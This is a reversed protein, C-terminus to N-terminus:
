ASLHVWHARSPVGERDTLFLMYWGPPALGPQRPVTVVLRCFGRRRRSIPLDVLRQETDCSHTVAMPRILQAWRIEDAQPTEIEFSQGYTIASPASEVFPRPGRFLYPPHYLELRLEDDRRHPNSGATIVRGDPLLLAVSHYLRPVVAKAARRWTNAAPDYLESELVASAPDEEPGGGTVFVTRDPLIVMNQMGRPHVPKPGAVFHPSAASLDILNMDTVPGGTGGGGLVMVRQRQAPPLLVSPAMSHHDVPTLGPVATESNAAVDFIFPARAFGDFHAGTFFVRGDRLLILNPFSGWDHPQPLPAAWGTLPSYIEVQRWVDGTGGAALVRGDGLTIATPYWRPAQMDGLRIWEESTPDFAYATRLGTFAYTETGGVVLLRGDGLFSQHACFVDIPTVPQHFSGNEYDWVVSRLGTTYLEDNGSGAFFLVKGTHMLAAHVALVQSDCPLLEFVGRTAALGLDITPTAAGDMGMDGMGMGGMGDADGGVHVPRNDPPKHRRPHCREQDVVPCENSGDDLPLRLPLREAAERTLWVWDRSRVLGALGVMMHEEIHCHFLFDGKVRLRCADRPPDCQQDELECPLRLAPPVETDTVFSEVPSLSHVDSAGGPPTPLRWRASHPHFNHWVGGLDLNLVYWRLREGAEAVITPTNGVYARGNLCYTAAGGGDAIVIHDHGPETEDNRWIVKGGPRVTAVQPDFKNDHASITRPDPGAPDIRLEGPMMAAGHIQCHYRCIGVENSATIEYTDGPSLTPSLFDCAIGTGAMQHVFMPVEHDVCPAGPDRVILGGFLGRNVTRGVDRVHDHFGWAGITEETADFVYTWVQGPLIEDSRRGDATEVGFPWAGDSDIGYRLGHLHFSHCDDPDGNLVHIRLREGPTAWLVAGPVRRSWPPENVDAPVLKSPNPVTYHPDLYERYVLANVSAAAIEGPSVRGLQHGHNFMCDRGYKRSCVIPALPSYRELPEIRLFIDRPRLKSV